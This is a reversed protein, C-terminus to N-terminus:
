IKEKEIREHLAIEKAYPRYKNEIEISNPRTFKAMVEHDRMKRIDHKLVEYGHPFEKKEVENAKENAYPYDKRNILSNKDSVHAVFKIKM